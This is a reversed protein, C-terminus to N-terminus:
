TVPNTLVNKPESQSSFGRSHKNCHTVTLSSFVLDIVAEVDGSRVDGSRVDGSRLDGSRVDGSRVDGSRVDGPRVGARSGIAPCISECSISICPNSLHSAKTFCAKIM